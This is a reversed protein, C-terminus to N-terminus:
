QYYEVIEPFTQKWNLNRFSDMKEVYDLMNRTEQPICPVNTLLDTLNTHNSYKELMHQKLDETMATLSLPGTCFSFHVGNFRSDGAFFNNAWDIIDKCYYVNLASTTVAVSFTKIDIDLSQFDRLVTQVNNWDLPYRLYDFRRETADISFSVNINKYQKLLEVIQKSPRQSGNTSFSVDVVSADHEQAFRSLFLETSDAYFPEGGYFKVHRLYSLDISNFVQDVIQKPSQFDPYDDATKLKFKKMQKVWTSSFHDNCSLCAANCATDVSLELYAVKGDPPDNPIDRFSQLRLSNKEYDCHRCEPRQAIKLFQESLTADALDIAPENFKCCPLAAQRDYYTQIRM